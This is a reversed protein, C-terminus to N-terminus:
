ERGSQLCQCTLSCYLLMAKASSDIAAAYQPFLMLDCAIPTPVSSYDSVSLRGDADRAAYIGAYLDDSM